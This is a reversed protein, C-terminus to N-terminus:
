ATDDTAWSGFAMDAVRAIEDEPVADIDGLELKDFHFACLRSAFEAIPLSAEGRIEGNGQTSCNIGQGWDQGSDNNPNFFYVRM